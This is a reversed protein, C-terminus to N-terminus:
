SPADFEADAILRVTVITPSHTSREVTYSQMHSMPGTKGLRILMAAVELDLPTPSTYIKVSM